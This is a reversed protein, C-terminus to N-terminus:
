LAMVPHDPDYQCCPQQQRKGVWYESIGDVETFMSVDIVNATCM